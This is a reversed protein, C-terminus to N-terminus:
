LNDNELEWALPTNEIVALCMDSIKFEKVTENYFFKVYKNNKKTEFIIFEDNIKKIYISKKRQYQLQKYGFTKAYSDIFSSNM